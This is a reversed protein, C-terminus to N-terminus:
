YELVYSTNEQDLSITVVHEVGDSFEYILQATEGLVSTVNLSGEPVQPTLYVEESAIENFCDTSQLITDEYFSNCLPEPYRVYCSVTENTTSTKIISVDLVSVREISFDQELYNGVITNVTAVEMAHETYGSNFDALIKNCELTYVSDYTDFSYFEYKGVDNTIGYGLLADNELYGVTINPVPNGSTDMVLGTIYIRKESKIESDYCSVLFISLLM